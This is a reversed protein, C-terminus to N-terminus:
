LGGNRPDFKENIAKAKDHFEAVNGSAEAKTVTEYLELIFPNSNNPDFWRLLLQIGTALLTRSLLVMPKNKTSFREPVLTHRFELDTPDNSLTDNHVYRIPQVDVHVRLMDPSQNSDTVVGLVWAACLFSRKPTQESFTPDYSGNTIMVSSFRELRHTYVVGSGPSSAKPTAVLGVYLHTGPLTKPMCCRREKSHDLRVHGQIAVNAIAHDKFENMLDAGDVNNVVGDLRYPFTEFSYIKSADVAEARQLRANIQEITLVQVMASTGSQKTLADKNGYHQARVAFVIDGEKPLQATGCAGLSTTAQRAYPIQANTRKPGQSSAPIPRRGSPVAGNPQGM